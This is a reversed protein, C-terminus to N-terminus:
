ATRPFWRYFLRKSLEGIQMWGFSWVWILVIYAISIPATLFGFFAILSAVIQTLSTAWIISKAPLFSYWPRETHALYILMHGSVTLKLFFMTQVVAWPLHLWSVAFWLLFLSNAVGNLGFITALTFRKKPNAAAPAMPVAVRDYAMTIIPLDNLLAILIIQVPTLPYTHFLVGIVAITIILRFSESIRYISYNYLRVFIKRAEIIADKIVSIGPETLVIDATGKLADVANSVAIGVDAAKIPPVDNVGDGTVAVVHGHGASRAMMVIEYKNKPMVEAFGGLSEFEKKIEDPHAELEERKVIRGPLGLHSAVHASVDYGDGTVMKVGIGYQNMFSVTPGAEPRVADALFFVAIPALAAETETNGWALSLVRFGGSAAEAVLADYRAALDASM